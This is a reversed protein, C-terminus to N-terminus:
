ENALTQLPYQTPSNDEPENGKREREGEEAERLSVRKSRSRSVGASMLIGKTEPDEETPRWLRREGATRLGEGSEAASVAGGAFLTFLVTSFLQTRVLTHKPRVISLGTKQERMSATWSRKVEDGLV